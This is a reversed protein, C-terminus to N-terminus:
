SSNCEVNLRVSKSQFGCAHLLKRHSCEFRLDQQFACRHLVLGHADAMAYQPKGRSFPGSVVNLLDSVIQYPCFFSFYTPAWHLQRIVKRRSNHLSSICREIGIM